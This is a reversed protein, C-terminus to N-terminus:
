LAEVFKELATRAAAEDKSDHRWAARAWEYALRLLAARQEATM